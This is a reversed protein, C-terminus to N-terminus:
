DATRDTRSGRIAVLGVLAALVEILTAAVISSSPMGDLAISLLRALGFSGFVLVSLWLATHRLSNQFTSAVILLGSCLLLGGPARIESLLSANDGLAIDNSGYFAHPTFLIAGGIATLILGAMGLYLVTMTNKM